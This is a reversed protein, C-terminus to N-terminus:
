TKEPPYISGPLDITPGARFITLWSRALGAPCEGVLPHSAFAAHWMKERVGRFESKKV